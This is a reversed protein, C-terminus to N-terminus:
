KILKKRGFGAVGILGCGLLLMTAPEPVPAPVPDGGALGPQIRARGTLVALDYLTADMTLKQVWFTGEAFGQEGWSGITQFHGVSATLYQAAIKAADWESVAQYIRARGTLVALDYLTEDMTPKEAWGGFQVAMSTGSLGLVLLATALFLIFKKM